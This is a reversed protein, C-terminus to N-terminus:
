VGGNSATCHPLNRKKAELETFDRKKMDWEVREKCSFNATGWPCDDCWNHEREWAAVNCHPLNVKKADMETFGRKEMEWEVRKQCSFTTTRWRCNGCWNNELSEKDVEENPWVWALSACHSAEGGRRRIGSMLDGAFTSGGMGWFKKAGLCVFKDVLADGCDVFYASEEKSKQFM